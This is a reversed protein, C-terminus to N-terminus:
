NTSSPNAEPMMPAEMMGKSTYDIPVIRYRYIMGHEGVVYGYDRAPPSFATVPAPFHFSRSTWHKGGDVTYAWTQGLMCWAVENDAFKLKPYTSDLKAIV